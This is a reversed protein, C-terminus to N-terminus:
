RNATSSLKWTWFSLAAFIVVLPWSIGLPVVHAGVIVESRTLARVLHGLAFLAFIIAAVRLGVIQSNMKACKWGATLM